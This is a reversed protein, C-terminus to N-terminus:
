SRTDRSPTPMLWDPPASYAALVLVVGTMIAVDALNFIGTRVPGLGVNLFDVVSGVAIRDIWNSAGGSVILAAGLLRWGQWRGRIAAVMLGVLMLGTALTFIILRGEIPLDAGLSLFGGTNEAYSLRVTDGLFSREQTDALLTAAAHKTIRDCGVTALCALLVLLRSSRRAPRV